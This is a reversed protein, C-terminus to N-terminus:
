LTNRKTKFKVNETVYIQNKYVMVYEFHKIKESFILTSPKM